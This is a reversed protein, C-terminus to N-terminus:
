FGQGCVVVARTTWSGGKSGTGDSGFYGFVGLGGGRYFASYNTGLWTTSANHWALNLADGPKATSTKDTYTNVYRHALKSPMMGTTNSIAGAVLEYNVTQMYVGTKNGTTTDITKNNSSNGFGSASLIAVTGYETSKMMHVDIGNSATTALQSTSNVVEKLGMAQGSAEMTRVKAVWNQIELKTPTNNTTPNAQLVAANSIQSISLCILVLVMVLIFKSIMKRKM